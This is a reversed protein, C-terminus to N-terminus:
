WSHFSVVFRHRGLFLYMIARTTHAPRASITADVHMKQTTLRMCRQLQCEAAFKGGVWARRVNIAETSINLLTFALDIRYARGVKHLYLTLDPVNPSIPRSFYICQTLCTKNKFGHHLYAETHVRCVYM